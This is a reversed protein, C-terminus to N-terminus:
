REKLKLTAQAILEALRTIATVEDMKHWRRDELIAVAEDPGLGDREALRYLSQGHNKQAQKEHPAIIDWPLSSMGQSM